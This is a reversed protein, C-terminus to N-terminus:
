QRRGVAHKDWLRYSERDFEQYTNDWKARPLLWRSRFHEFLADSPQDYRRLHLNDGRLYSRTNEALPIVFAERRIGHYQLNTPLGVAMLVKRVTERRNRFGTGWNSNKATPECWQNAFRQIEDYVGNAFHFDGSGSTYGVSKYITREEFRLRNYISSRGLASVTTLMALAGSQPEAKIWTARDSYKRTFARQVEDGAALLAVLKGCLLSSYPPVAGLLFADMVYRLRHRRQDHTWGVWADRPALGFVPDGLGIVGILRGNQEDLVVFRLRRGYGSSVPISWHAAAYRVLLEETTRPKVEVLRPRIRQPVVEEGSAIYSLLLDEHRRLGGAVKALRHEVAPRHLERMRRKSLHIGNTQGSPDFGQSLLSEEILGRLRVADEDLGTSSGDDGVSRFM